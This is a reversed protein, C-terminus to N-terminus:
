DNLVFILHFRNNISINVNCAQEKLEGIVRRNNVFYRRLCWRPLLPPPARVWRSCIEGPKSAHSEPQPEHTHLVFTLAAGASECLRLIRLSHTSTTELRQLIWM